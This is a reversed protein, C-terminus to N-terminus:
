YTIGGLFRGGSEGGDEVSGLPEGDKTLQVGVGEKATIGAVSVGIRNDRYM